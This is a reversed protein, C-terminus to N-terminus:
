SRADNSALRACLANLLLTGKSSPVAVHARVQDSYYMPKDWPQLLFMLRLQRPTHEELAQGITIFNKLSKSMKLGRINLHGAHFFYNM